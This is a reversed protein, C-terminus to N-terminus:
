VRREIYLREFLTKSVGYLTQSVRGDEFFRTVRDLFQNRAMENPYIVLINQDPSTLLHNELWNPMTAGSFTAEITINQNTESM